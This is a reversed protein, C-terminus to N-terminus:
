PTTSPNGRKDRQPEATDHFRPGGHVRMCVDRFAHTVNPPTSLRHPMVNNTSPIHSNGQWRSIPVLARLRDNGLSQPTLLPVPLLLRQVLKKDDVDSDDSDDSGSGSVNFMGTVDSYPSKILIAEASM